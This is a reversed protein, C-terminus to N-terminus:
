PAGKADRNCQRCVIGMRPPVVVANLTLDHGRACTKRKTRYRWSKRLLNEAQTVAELHHVARCNRRMCLHDIVMGEPVRGHAREYAVIHARSRGHYAYGDKDLRSTVLDCGFPDTM